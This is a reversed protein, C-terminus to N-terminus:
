GTAGNPRIPLRVHLWTPRCRSDVRRALVSFVTPVGNVNLIGFSAVARGRPERYATLPRTVVAAVAVDRGGVPEQEGALCHRAGAVGSRQGGCGAAVLALLCAGFIVRVTM